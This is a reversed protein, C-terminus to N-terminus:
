TLVGTGREASETKRQRHWRVLLGGVAGGLVKLFHAIVYATPLTVGVTIAIYIAAAVLGVVAGHLVPRSTAKGAVILAVVCPLVFAAPPILYLPGTPGFWTAIPMVLFIGIEAVVGGGLAWAWRFNQMGASM